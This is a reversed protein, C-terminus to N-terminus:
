TSKLSSKKNISADSPNSPYGVETVRAQRFLEQQQAFLEEESIGSRRMVSDLRGSRFTKRRRKRDEMEELRRDNTNAANAAETFVAPLGLQEIASACM